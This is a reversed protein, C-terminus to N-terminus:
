SRRRMAAALICAVAQEFDLGYQAVAAAFGADPSLCPNANVDIVLPRGQNDLRFDVRAYGALGFCSWCDLAARQLRHLLEPESALDFSRITSRYAVSDEKWKAEYGAIRPAGPEWNRFHLEAPPLVVPGAETELLAVNFERGPVYAEAFWEGDFALERLDMEDLVQAPTPELLVCGQDLGKSAHETASKVIWARWVRLEKPLENAGARAKSLGSRDLWPPTAIKARALATKALLKHSSLRMAKAGCGTFRLGRQELQAPARWAEADSGNVTEVLNFLADPAAQELNAVEKESDPDL